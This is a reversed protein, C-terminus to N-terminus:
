PSTWSSSTPITYWPRPSACGSDCVARTDASPAIRLTRWGSWLSPGISLSPSAPFVTCKRPCSSSSGHRDHVSLGDRARAHFRRAQVPRSQRPDTRRAGTIAGKSCKSLGSIMYLLTTKGAGNPGLLGTIGPRVELSVDNVAVVSGFWKSVQEVEISAGNNSAPANTM